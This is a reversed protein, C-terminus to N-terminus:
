KLKLNSLIEITITRIKITIKIRRMTEKLEIVELNKTLLYMPRILIKIERMEDTRKKILSIKIMIKIRKTTIIVM